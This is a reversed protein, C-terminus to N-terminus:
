GDTESRPTLSGNPIEDGPLRAGPVEVAVNRM